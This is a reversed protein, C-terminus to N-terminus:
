QVQRLQLVRNFFIIGLQYMQYTIKKNLKKNFIYVGVGM